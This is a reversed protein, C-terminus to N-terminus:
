IIFLPAALDVTTPPATNERIAQTGPLATTLNVAFCLILVLFKHNLLEM